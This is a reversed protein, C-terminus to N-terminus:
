RDDRRGTRGQLEFLTGDPARFHAWEFGEARQVPGVLEVGAAGLEARAAEVDDVMFGVVPGTDFHSYRDLSTDFVDVPDGNPLLFLARGQERLGPRLGLSQEFFRAMDEFRSTRIGLWSLRRIEV